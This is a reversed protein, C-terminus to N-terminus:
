WRLTAQFWLMVYMTLYVSAFYGILTPAQKPDFGARAGLAIVGIAAMTLSLLNRYGDESVMAAIATFINKTGEGTGFVYLTWTNGSGLMATDALAFGPLFVLLCTALTKLFATM